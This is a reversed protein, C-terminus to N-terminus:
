SPEIEAARAQVALYRCQDTVYDLTRYREEAFGFGLRGAPDIDAWHACDFGLWWGEDGEGLLCVQERDSGTSPGAFTLGGHVEAPVDDYSLGHWPHRPAVLVYGCWIGFLHSRLALCPLGTTDDVWDARDPEGDWPGPPWSTRDLFAFIRVRPPRASGTSSM